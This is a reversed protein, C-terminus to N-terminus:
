WGFRTDIWPRLANTMAQALKPLGARRLAMLAAIVAKYPDGEAVRLFASSEIQPPALCQPPAQKRNRAVNHLPKEKEIAEVEAAAASEWDPFNEIEIRAISRFWRANERHQGLRQIAALSIGIYLLQGAANFHRYLQAPSKM